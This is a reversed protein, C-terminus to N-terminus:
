RSPHHSPPKLCCLFAPTPQEVILSLDSLTSLEPVYYTVSHTSTSILQYSVSHSKQKASHEKPGGERARTTIVQLPSPHRYKIHNPYVTFVACSSFILAWSDLIHAIPNKIITHTRTNTIQSSMIVGGQHLSFTM